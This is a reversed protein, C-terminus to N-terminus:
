RLDDNSESKIVNLSGCRKCKIEIEGDYIFGKCLLKGCDCRHDSYTPTSMASQHIHMRSQCM